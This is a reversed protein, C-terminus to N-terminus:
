GALDVGREAPRTGLGVGTRRTWQDAPDARGVRRGSPELAGLLLFLAGLVLWGPVGWGLALTTVVM